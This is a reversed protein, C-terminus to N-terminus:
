KIFYETIDKIRNPLKRAYVRQGQMEFVGAIKQGAEKLNKLEKERDEPTSDPKPNDLCLVVELGGFLEAMEPKFNNVGLIAVAKIGNQELMMADFAGECIYVWAGTALTKLTEANFLQVPRKLHMYKSSIADKDTDIRRGQLFIIKENEIFPIIVKHKYFILNGKESVLGAERLAEISFKGQLFKNTTAYDKVSFLRFRALTEKTLGRTPGTLYALSEDDLGGCHDSLAKYIGTIADTLPKQPAEPTYFPSPTTKGEGQTKIPQRATYAGAQGQTPPTHKGETMKALDTIAESVSVGKVEKYLDIVSGSINCSFCKFRNDKFSLSPTRDQHKFCHAKTRSNGKFKIGLERALDTINIADKLSKLDTKM